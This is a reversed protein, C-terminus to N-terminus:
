AARSMDVDDRWTGPATITPRADHKPLGTKRDICEDVAQWSLAYLSCQNRGGQRTQIVFGIALLEKLARHLTGKSKWGQRHMRKNFPASLDGNNSGPGNYQAALELLLKVAWATLTAYKRTKIVELPIGAFKSSGM